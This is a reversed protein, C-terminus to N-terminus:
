CWIYLHEYCMYICPTFQQGPYRQLIEPVAFGGNEVLLGKLEESIVIDEECLDELREGGGSIEGKGRILLGFKHTKRIIDTVGFLFDIILTQCV